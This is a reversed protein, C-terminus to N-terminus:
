PWFSAVTAILWIAGGTSLKAAMGAARGLGAGTASRVADGPARGSAFELALAGIAAGCCAGLISGIIPIPIVLTGAIGGILTGLLAGVAGWRSGGTRKAGFWGGLLEVAEGVLALLALIVLVTVSIMQDTPPRSPDWRWWAILGTTAVMLWNGPLGLLSLALWMLNVLALGAAVLISM